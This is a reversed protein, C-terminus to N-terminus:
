KLGATRPWGAESPPRGPSNSRRGPGARPETLLRLGCRHDISGRGQPARNGSGPDREGVHAREIFVHVAGINRHVRGALNGRGRVDRRRGDIIRQGDDVVGVARDDVRDEAGGRALRVGALVVADVDPHVVEVGVGGDSVGDDDEVAEAGGIGCHELHHSRAPAHM